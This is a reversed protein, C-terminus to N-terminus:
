ATQLEVRLALTHEKRWQDEFEAPTLYGLSSHIRKHMYVDDLFRGIQRYADNYDLYESLDVEEEKITRILREAYGNQWVEGVDAMSIQVNVDQLVQTYAMAAYQVGQDSHHIEPAPYRALARRLATLTLTHDLSRGLHWGRIGRTFVDMIVALYVFDYRLRIYTIDCVWVQDPRVIELELVLNPYRPFDHESNTTRRKGRRVQAQIGMLRMLRQVRKHNVLWEQRRLQATIRRYGYTPWKAAEKKIAAKLETEDPSETSHCYYSSRACSLVECAVTISYEQALM